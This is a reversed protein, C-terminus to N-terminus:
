PGYRWLNGTMVRRVSGTLTREFPGTATRSHGQICKVATIVYALNGFGRVRSGDATEETNRIQVMFRHNGKLMRVMLPLSLDKIYRRKIYTFADKFSVWLDSDLEPPAVKYNRQEHDFGRLLGCMKKALWWADQNTKPSLRVVGPLDCSKMTAFSNPESGPIVFVFDPDDENM